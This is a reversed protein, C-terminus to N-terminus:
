ASAEPVPANGTVLVMVAMRIAIGNTVQDLIVSQPGDAVASDIEVGRNTPGPHMVVAEPHAHAMRQPTVGWHAFYETESPLLGHEMRERQLRLLMVVDAGDLGAEIDDHATVGLGEVSRPLLTPPGVVRIDQTGLARLAHIQSRAVRSHRVDGVIAVSLPEFRGKHRRITLVDLLAQTPHAHQGDGANVLHVGPSVHQALFHSAGSEGHRVVFLDCQMAELNALTDLLSEGKGTAASAADINLVDASLRQAALEFTTRTRTSKEFFLNVVTHGRLLPVKKIAKDHVGAFSEALELITEIRERGLGETTLLHCLGSGPALQLASASAM